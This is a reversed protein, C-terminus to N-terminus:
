CSESRGLCPRRTLLKVGSAAVAHDVATRDSWGSVSLNARLAATSVKGCLALKCRQHFFSESLHGRHEASECFRTCTSFEQLTARSSLLYLLLCSATNCTIASTTFSAMGVVADM